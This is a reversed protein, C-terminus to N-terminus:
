NDDNISGVISAKDDIVSVVLFCKNEPSFVIKNCFFLTLAECLAERLDVSNIILNFKSTIEIDPEILKHYANNEGMNKGLEIIDQKSGFLVQTAMAYLSYKMMNSPSIEKLTPSKLTGVGQLVFPDPSLLAFQPIKM